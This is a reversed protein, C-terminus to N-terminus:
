KQENNYKVTGTYALDLIVKIGTILQKKGKESKLDIECFPGLRANAHLAMYNIGGFLFALVIKIEINTNQFSPSILEFLESRLQERKSNIEKISKSSNNVELLLIKQKSTDSILDTFLNELLTAMVEKENKQEKFLERINIEFDKWYDKTMMYAELLNNINSFYRYILKKDLDAHFAINNIGLTSNGESQIIEGVANILKAKTREKNRIEGNTIKREM